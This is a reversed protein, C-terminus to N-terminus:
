TYYKANEQIKFRMHDDLDDRDLLDACCDAGVAQEEPTLYYAVISLEYDFGWKYPSLEVFLTDSTMPIKRGMLALDYARKHHSYERLLSVAAYLSEARSTRYIWADVFWKIALEYYDNKQKEIEETTMNQAHTEIYKVDAESQEPKNLIHIIHKFIEFLSKYNFGVQYMSYYMEEPWGGYDIRRQYETISNKYEGLCKYTQALYFSYRTKLFAELNPNELDKELLRKDRQFKDSKCGGDERDNIQITKLTHTKIEGKFRNEKKESWYEHTVGVCEWDIESSLMRINFYSLNNNTQRVLYKHEHLLKKNFKGCVDIEWIFDADSLLYYSAQPFSERAKVISHTRNYGFNVFPEYHVKGPIKNTTLWSQIITPTQDDSGTDVISVYDIIPKVSNLLRVMNKSENKVIMTLCITKPKNIQKKQLKSKKAAASHSM